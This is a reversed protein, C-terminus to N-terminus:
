NTVAAAFAAGDDTLYLYDASNGRDYLLGMSLLNRVDCPMLLLVLVIADRERARVHGDAILEAFRARTAGHSDDSLAYTAAESGGQGILLAAMDDGTIYDSESSM